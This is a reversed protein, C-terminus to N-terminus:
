SRLLDRLREILDDRDYPKQIFRTAKETALRRSADTESYGSSLLIPVDPRVRRIEHFAEEGGMKPMTLDLIVARIEHPRERFVQVGRLGDRAAVVVFGSSELMWRTIGRLEEDDDVVLVTGSGRWAKAPRGEASPEDPRVETSPFLVRFTTGRNPQSDV